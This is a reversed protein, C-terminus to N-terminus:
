RCSISRASASQRSSRWSSYLTTHLSCHPKMRATLGLCSLSFSEDRPLLIPKTVILASEPETTTHANSAFLNPTQTERLFIVESM